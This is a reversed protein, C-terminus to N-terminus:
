PHTDRILTLIEDTGPGSWGAAGRLRQAIAAGHDRIHARQLIIRAGSVRCTLEMGPTIGLAERVEMPITIQGKPNVRV